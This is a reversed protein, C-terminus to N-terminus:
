CNSHEYPTENKAFNNIPVSQTQKTFLRQVSLATPLGRVRPQNGRKNRKESSRARERRLSLRQLHQATHHLLVVLVNLQPVEHRDGEVAQLGRVALTGPTRAASTLRDAVFGVM